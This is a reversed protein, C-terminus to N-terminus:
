RGRTARYEIEDYKGRKDPRPARVFFHQRGRCEEVRYFFNNGPTVYALPDAFRPETLLWKGTETDVLYHTRDWGATVEYVGGGCAEGVCSLTDMWVTHERGLKFDVLTGVQYTIQRAKDKATAAGACLIVAAAILAIRNAHIKM